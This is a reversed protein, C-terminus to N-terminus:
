TRDPLMRAEVRTWAPSSCLAIRGGVLKAGRPSGTIQVDRMFTGTNSVIVPGAWTVGDDSYVVDLAGGNAFDNFSIYMRGYTGSTPENDAWMSPRDDSAGTSPCSGTTWTKGNTSTWLGIGLGSSCDGSAVLDGAFFKGLKSNYVVLPDGYNTGHGSNFPPPEIEKFTAGGDTSYSTGSYSGQDYNANYNVVITKVKIRLALRWWAKVAM